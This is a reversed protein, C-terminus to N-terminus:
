SSTFRVHGNPIIHALPDPDSRARAKLWPLTEPDDKWGQALEQVAAMRVIWDLDREGASLLWDRTEIDHWVAALLAVFKERTIGSQDYEKWDEYYYPANYRVGRRTIELRVAEDTRRIIQDRNATAIRSINAKLRFYVPTLRFHEIGFSDGKIPGM